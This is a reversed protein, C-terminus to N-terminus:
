HEAQTPGMCKCNFRRDLISHSYFFNYRCNMLCACAAFVCPLITRCYGRFADFFRLFLSDAFSVLCRISCVLFVFSVNLWFTYVICMYITFYCFLVVVFVCVLLCGSPIINLTSRPPCAVYLRVLSLSCFIAVAFTFSTSSIYAVIFLNIACM